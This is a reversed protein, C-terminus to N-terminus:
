TCGFALKELLMIRNKNVLSFTVLVRYCSFNKGLPKPQIGYDPSLKFCPLGGYWKETLIDMYGNSSYKAIVASVSDQLYFLIELSHVFINKWVYLYTSTNTFTVRGSWASFLPEVDAVTKDYESLRRFVFTASRWPALCFKKHDKSKHQRSGVTTYQACDLYFSLYDASDPSCSM